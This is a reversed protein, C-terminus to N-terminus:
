TVAPIKFTKELKFLQLTRHMRGSSNNARECETQQAHFNVAYANDIYLDGKIVALFASTSFGTKDM